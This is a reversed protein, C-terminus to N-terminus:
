RFARRDFTARGARVPWQLRPGTWRAGSAAARDDARARADIADLVALEAQWVTWSAYDLADVAADEAYMADDDAVDSKVEGRKSRDHLDRMKAALDPGTLTPLPAHFWCWCSTQPM